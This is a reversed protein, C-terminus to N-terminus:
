VIATLLINKVSVSLTKESKFKNQQCLSKADGVDHNIGIYILRHYHFYSPLYTSTFWISPDKSHDVFYMRIIVFSINSLEFLMNINIKMFM